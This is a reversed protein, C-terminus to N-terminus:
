FYYPVDLATASPTFEGYKKRAELIDFSQTLATSGEICDTERVAKDFAEIGRLMALSEDYTIGRINKLVYHVFDARRPHGSSYTDIERGTEPDHTKPGVYERKDSYEPNIKAKHSFVYAVRQLAIELLQISLYDDPHKLRKADCGEYPRLFDSADAVEMLYEPSELQKRLVKYFHIRGRNEGVHHMINCAASVEDDFALLGARLAEDSIKYSTPSKEHAKKLVDFIAQWMDPALWESVQMMKMITGLRSFSDAAIHVTYPTTDSITIGERHISHEDLMKKAFYLAHTAGRDGGQEALDFHIDFKEDAGNVSYHVTARLVPGGAENPEIIHTQNSDM